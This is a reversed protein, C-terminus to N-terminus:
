VALRSGAVMHDAVASAAEALAELAERFNCRQILQYWDFIDGGLGRSFWYWSQTKPWLKLSDHEHTTWVAAGSKVVTFTEGVLDVISLTDKILAVSDTM